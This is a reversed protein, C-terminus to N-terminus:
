TLAAAGFVVCKILACPFQVLPGAAFDLIVRKANSNM